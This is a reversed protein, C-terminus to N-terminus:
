SVGGEGTFDGAFMAKLEEETFIDGAIEMIEKQDEDPLGALDRKIMDMLKDKETTPVADLDIVGITEKM